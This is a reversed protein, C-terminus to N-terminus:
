FSPSFAAGVGLRPMSMEQVDPPALSLILLTFDRLM